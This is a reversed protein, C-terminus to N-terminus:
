LLWGDDVERPRFFQVTCWAALIPIGVALALIGRALRV